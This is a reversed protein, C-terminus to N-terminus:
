IRYAYVCMDYAHHQTHCALSADYSHVKGNYESWRFNRPCMYMWPSYMGLCLPEDPTPTVLEPCFSPPPAHPAGAKFGAHLSSYRLPGAAPLDNDTRLKSYTLLREAARTVDWKM